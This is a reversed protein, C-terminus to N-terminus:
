LYKVKICYINVDDRKQNPRLAIRIVIIIVVDKKEYLNTALKIICLLVTHVHYLEDMHAM